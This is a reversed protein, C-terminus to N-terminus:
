KRHGGEPVAASGNKIIEIRGCLRARELAFSEPKKLTRAIACALAGVLLTFVDDVFGDEQTRLLAPDIHELLKQPCLEGAAREFFLQQVDMNVNLSLLAFARSFAPTICGSTLKAETPSAWRIPRWFNMRALNSTDATSTMAGMAMAAMISCMPSIEAMEEVVPWLKM